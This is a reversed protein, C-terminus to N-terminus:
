FPPEEELDMGKGVVTGTDVALDDDHSNTAGTFGELKPVITNMVMQYLFEIRDTDDWIKEGKVTVQTMQPLGNPNDKTYAHKVSQGDQNIFLSSKNKGDVEKVSPQVKMEKTLDVNPLMKLLATAFSNSYSLQLHYVDANDKFSFIWSKGYTGEQTKIGVLKGTFSDYFKETVTKGLKNTRTVAGQTGEPVKQCFKGGLITIFNGEARNDLGM